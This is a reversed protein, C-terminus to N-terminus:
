ECFGFGNFPNPSSYFKTLEIKLIPWYFINDVKLDLISFNEEFYNIKLLVDEIYIHRQEKM